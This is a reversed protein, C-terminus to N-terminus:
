HGPPHRGTMVRTIQETNLAPSPLPTPADRRARMGDLLLVMCRRWGDPSVERTFDAAATLMLQVLVIDSGSLDDRLEGARQARDVLGHVLPGLRDRDRTIRAQGHATSFVLQRLGRDAVQWATARDIFYVLGSWADGSGLAEEALTALQAVRDEFLAEILLEKTPFRRYFTGIGVGSRRAIEDTTADLGLEAFAEAAGQLIRRRNREADRRLPRDTPTVSM